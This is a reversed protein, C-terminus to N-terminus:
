LLIYASLWSQNQFYYQSVVMEKKNQLQLFYKAQNQVYHKCKVKTPDMYSSGNNMSLLIKRSSQGVHGNWPKM